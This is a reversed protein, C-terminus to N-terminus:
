DIYKAIRFGVDIRKTNDRDRYSLRTSSLDGRMWSAGRIVHKDDIAESSMPGSPDIFVEDSLSPYITHYDHCWEAVNGGVDFLGFYNAAFSGVPSAVIYGDNYDPLVPQLLDAASEDAYNGTVKSPPFSKGWEYRNVKNNSQIRAVWEWESETLLRYGSPIPNKAVLKGAKEKYVTQLGEKISLWNCYEAAEDWTINAVPLNSASLDHGKYTGTQHTNKFALFQQNTTEHIAVYFPRKLEVSHLTENSRRGQERRPAGMSFKGAFILKLVHGESTRISKPKSVHSASTIRSLNIDLVKPASPEPAIMKEYVQYGSKRVELRQSASPLSLKVNGSGMFKGNIFVEADLPEVNLVITGLIAELNASINKQEGPRLIVTQQNTKFGPKSLNIDHEVNPNLRLTFPTVGQEEGAVIVTAKSPTSTIVLHSPNTFLEAIPLNFAQNADVSFDKVYPLFDAHLLELSYHGTDLELTTPTIGKKEGNLWIEAGPPQSNIVVEKWDPLLKVNLKQELDKGEIVIQTSYTQFREANAELTYTGADLPVPEIPTTGIKKGDITIEVNEKPESSLLLYGPNKELTFSFTQTQYKGVKIEQELSRYGKKDAIISYHGPQVLYRDRIKIPWVKGHLAVRDPTPKIEILLTKATFIYGLLVALLGFLLIGIFTFFRTLRKKPKKDVATQAPIIPEILEGDSAIAENRSVLHADDEYLSISLINGIHECHFATGEIELIDDHQIEKQGIVKENNILININSNETDIYARNVIIILFAPDSRRRESTVELEAHSDTGISIPFDAHTYFRPGKHDTICVQEIM